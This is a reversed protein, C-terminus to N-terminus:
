SVYYTWDMKEVTKMREFGNRLECFNEEIWEKAQKIEKHGKVRSKKLYICAIKVKSYETYIGYGNSGVVSYYKKNM